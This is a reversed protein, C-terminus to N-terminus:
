IDHPFDVAQEVDIRETPPPSARQAAPADGAGVILYFVAAALGLLLGLYGNATCRNKM